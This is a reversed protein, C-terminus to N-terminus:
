TPVFDATKRLVERTTRSAPLDRLAELSVWRAELADDDPSPQGKIYDALLDVVVYHYQIRDEEDREILDFAYVPNGARVILRTEERVEREVAEKLTEGLRVRGGPVAWLGEGPPRGRKVLLVKNNRMVIAGVALQPRDPYEYSSM